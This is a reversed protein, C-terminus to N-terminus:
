GAASDRNLLGQLSLVTHPNKQMGSNGKGAQPIGPIWAGPQDPTLAGRGGFRNMTM